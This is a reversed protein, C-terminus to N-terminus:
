NRNITNYCMFDMSDCACPLSCDSNSTCNMGACHTADVNLALLSNHATFVALILWAIQLSRVITKKM